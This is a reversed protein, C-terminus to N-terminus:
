RRSFLAAPFLHSVRLEVVPKAAAPGDIPFVM